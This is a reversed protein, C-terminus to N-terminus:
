EDDTDFIIDSFYQVLVTAIIKKRLLVVLVALIVMMGAAILLGGTFDQYNQGYWVAFALAVFTVVMVGFLAVVLATILFTGFKTSKKLVSLKALDISAQIYRKVSDTLGAM